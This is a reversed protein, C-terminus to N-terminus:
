KTSPTFNLGHKELIKKRGESKSGWNKLQAQYLPSDDDDDLILKSLDDKILSLLHDMLPDSDSPLNIKMLMNLLLGMAKKRQPEKLSVNSVKSVITKAIEFNNLKVTWALPTDSWVQGALPDAGLSLLKEVLSNDAIIIAKSLPFLYKEDLTNINKDFIAKQVEEKFNKRAAELLKIGNNMGYYPEYENSKKLYANSKSWEEKASLCEKTSLFSRQKEADNNFFNVIGEEIKDALTSLKYYGDFMEPKELIAPPINNEILLKNMLLFAYVRQNGDPFFHAIELARLLEAIAELKGQLTTVKSIQQYYHNIVPNIKEEIDKEESPFLSIVSLSKKRKEQTFAFFQQVIPRIYYENCNSSISNGPSFIAVIREPVFLIGSSVLEDLADKDINDPLGYSWGSSTGKKMDQIPGVAADHLERLLKVTVRDGIKNSMLKLANMMGQYYGSEKVDFILHPDKKKEEETPNALRNKDIFLKYFQDHSFNSFALDYKAKGQLSAMRGKYCQLLQEVESSELGALAITSCLLALVVLNCYFYINM